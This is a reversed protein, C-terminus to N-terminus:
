CTLSQTNDTCKRDFTIYRLNCMCLEHSEYSQGEVFHFLPKFTHLLVINSFGVTTKMLNNSMNQESLRLAAFVQFPDYTLLKWLSSLNLFLFNGM